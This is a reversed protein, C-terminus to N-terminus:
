RVDLSRLNFARIRIKNFLDHLKSPGYIDIVPVAGQETLGGFDIFDLCIWRAFTTNGLNM